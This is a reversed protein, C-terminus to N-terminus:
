SHAEIWERLADGFAALAVECEVVADELNAAVAKPAPAPPPAALADSARARWGRTRVGAPRTDLARARASVQSRGLPLGADTLAQSIALITFGKGRLDAILADVKAQTKPSRKGRRTM